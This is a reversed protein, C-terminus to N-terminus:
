RPWPRASGSRGAAARGGAARAGDADVVLSPAMMSAVREGPPTAHFGGPHLDDEGMMNNAM